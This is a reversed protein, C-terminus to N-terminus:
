ILLLMIIKKFIKKAMGLFTNQKKTDQKKTDEYACTFWGMMRHPVADHKQLSNKPMFMIYNM